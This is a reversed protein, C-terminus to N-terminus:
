FIARLILKAIPENRSGYEAAKKLTKFFKPVRKKRISTSKIYDEAEVKKITM